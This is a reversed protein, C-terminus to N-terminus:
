QLNHPVVKNKNFLVDWVNVLTAYGPYGAEHNMMQKYFLIFVTLTM